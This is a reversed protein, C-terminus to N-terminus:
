PTLRMIGFTAPEFGVGQMKGPEFGVGQVLKMKGIEQVPELSLFGSRRPQGFLM